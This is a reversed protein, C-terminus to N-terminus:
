ENEIYKRDKEDRKEDKVAKTLYKRQQSKLFIYKIASAHSHM